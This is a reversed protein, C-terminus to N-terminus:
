ERSLSDHTNQAQMLCTQYENFQQESRITAVLAANTLDFTGGLNNAKAVKLTKSRLVFKWRATRTRDVTM